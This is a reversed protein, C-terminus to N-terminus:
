RMRYSTRSFDDAALRKELEIDTFSYSEVLTQEDLKEPQEAEGWTFNRICVPLRLNKDIYMMAKRYNPNHEPSDYTMVFLFCDREDFKQGDYLECQFGTRSALDKKQMDLVTRALTLLGCDTVPHRSERTVRPDDHDLELTGTLRGALGGPLVLLKDNNQGRVYLLQRGRVGPGTGALWKMYISFPESQRLKVKMVQPDLLEGDVREQRTLSFSYDDVAELSHIGQEILAISLQLAWEGRLVSSDVTQTASQANEGPEAPAPAAQPVSPVALVPTVDLAAVRGAPESGAVMPDCNLYSFTFAGVMLLTAMTNPLRSGPAADHRRTM